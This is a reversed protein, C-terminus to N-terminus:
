NRSSDILNLFEDINRIPKRIFNQVGLKQAKAEPNADATMMLVPIQSFDPNKKQEERFGFADMVPMM